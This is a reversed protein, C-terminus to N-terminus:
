GRPHKAAPRKLAACIAKPWGAAQHVVAFFGGIDLEITAAAGRCEDRACQVAQSLQAFVTGIPHGAHEVRWGGKDSQSIRFRPLRAHTAQSNTDGAIGDGTAPQAAPETERSVAAMALGTWRRWSPEAAAM